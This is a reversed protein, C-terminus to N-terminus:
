EKPAPRFREAVREVELRPGDVPEYRNSKSNWATLQPYPYIPMELETKGNVVRRCTVENPVTGTERWAMVLQM